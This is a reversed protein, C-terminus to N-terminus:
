RLIHHLPMVSVLLIYRGHPNKHGAAARRLGSGQARFGRDEARFRLGPHWTVLWSEYNEDSASLAKGLYIHREDKGRM